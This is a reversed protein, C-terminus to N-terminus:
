RERVSLSSSTSRDLDGFADGATPAFVGLVDVVRRTNNISLSLAPCSVVLFVFCSRKAREDRHIVKVM